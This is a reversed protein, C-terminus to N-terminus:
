YNSIKYLSLKTFDDFQYGWNNVFTLGTIKRVDTNQTDRHNGHVFAAENNDAFLKTVAHPRIGTTFWMQFFARMYYNGGEYLHWYGSNQNGASGNYYMTSTSLSGPQSSRNYTTLTSSDYMHPYIALHGGTASFSITGQLLYRNDAAINSSIEFDNITTGSPVTYDAVHQLGGASIGTLASGDIAPLPNPFVNTPITGSTLNAANLQTLDVPLNTLNAGDGTFSTATCSGTIDVGNATTILKQNGSHKLAVSSNQAISISNNSNSIHQLDAVKITSM